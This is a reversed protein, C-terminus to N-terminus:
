NVSSRIFFCVHRKKGYLLLNELLVLQGLTVKHFVPIELRMMSYGPVIAGIM